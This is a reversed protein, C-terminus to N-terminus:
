ADAHRLGGLDFWTGAGRAVARDYIRRASAVDEIALGLSKFVTIEQPTRRGASRPPDVLL